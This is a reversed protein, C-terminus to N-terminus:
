KGLCFRAFVEDIIDERVAEGTIEGLCAWAENVDIEILEFPQKDESSILAEQVSNLAKNILNLHRVNTILVNESARVKGEYVMNQIRDELEKLGTGNEMSTIIIKEEEFYPKLDSVGFKKDKDAKNLLVIVEEKGELQKIIEMDEEDVTRSLDMIFLVLDARKLSNLSKEVGIKEVTDETERIGATDTINLLIGGINLQEEITDRTTGPIETVISRTERLLRNMLSSKGVNPKGVIVTNLGERLIRGTYGTDSLEKLDKEIVQLQGEIKEYTMIEIDEDPYDINVALDVLVDVIKQRVNNIEESLRGSLQGMAAKYSAETKSKILDIVAEAQSLDIRGNLFARKTFEGPEALRAGSRLVLELTKKLSVMSGHCNIEVVDETTYTYPGKMMVALVEDVAEGTKPDVIRGYTLKRNEILYEKDKNLKNAPIFLSRLIAEASEGSIRVIGIGGEGPATAIAAITDEKFM